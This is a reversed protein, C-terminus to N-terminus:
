VMESIVGEKLAFPSIIVKEPRALKLTYEILLMAVVILKVRSEPMGKMNLRDGYNSSIIKSSIPYIIEIDLSTVENTLEDSKNRISELVEFSGSAGVLTNIHIGTIKEKLSDLVSDLHDIVDQKESETIPETKHFANHLVGVGINYSKWWIPRNNQILIFEVSGGGIDMILHYDNKFEIIQNVGKFILEAEREGNIIEIDIGTAKKVEDVFLNGNSASRLAATGIAKVKNISFNSIKELFSEIAELGKQFSEDGIKDLGESALGVFSREKYLVEFTKDANIEVILLHFTNSGLDIIAIHNDTGVM